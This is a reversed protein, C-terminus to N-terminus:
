QGAYKGISIGVSDIALHFLVEDKLTRVSSSNINRILACSDLSLNEHALPNCAKELWKINTRSDKM